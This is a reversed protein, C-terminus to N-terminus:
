ATTSFRNQGESTRLPFARLAPYTNTVDNMGPKAGALAGAETLLERYLRALAGRRPARLQMNLEMTGGRLIFDWFRRSIMLGLEVVAM